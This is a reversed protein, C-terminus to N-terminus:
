WREAAADVLAKVDSSSRADGAIFLVRDGAGLESLARAGKEADRGNFAVRAGEALFAEVIARGISRSGGTVAAVKGSMKM